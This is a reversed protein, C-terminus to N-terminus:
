DNLTHKGVTPKVPWFSSQSSLARISQFTKRQLQYKPSNRLRETEDAPSAPIINKPKRNTTNLATRKALGFLREQCEANVSRLCVIEYQQGSHCSLDHLYSGFFKEKSVEHTTTFLKLCIEHHIWMTNYLQLISRPTRSSDASYLISSERVITEMLTVLEDTGKKLFLLFAHIAITRLDAGTIKEKKQASPSSKSVNM